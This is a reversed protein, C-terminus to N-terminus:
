KLALLLPLYAYHISHTHCHGRRMGIHAAVAAQRGRFVAVWTATSV